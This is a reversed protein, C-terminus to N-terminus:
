RSRLPIFDFLPFTATAFITPAPITSAKPRAEHPPVCNKINGMPHDKEAVIYEKTWDEKDYVSDGTTKGPYIKPLIPTDYVVPIGNVISSATIGSVVTGSPYKPVPTVPVVPTVTPTVTPMGSSTTYEAM